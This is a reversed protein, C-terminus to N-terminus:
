FAWFRPTFSPRTYFFHMASLRDNTEKLEKNDEELKKYSETLVEIEKKLKDIEKVHEVEAGHTHLYEDLNDKTNKISEVIKVENGEDDIFQFYESNEKISYESFSYFQKSTTTTTESVDQHVKTLEYRYEDKNFYLIDGVELGKIAKIVKVKM